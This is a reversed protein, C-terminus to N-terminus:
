GLKELKDFSENWGAKCMERTGDPVGEHTLTMLTEDPSIERLEITVTLELPFDSMGYHTAPVVNGQADAFSDTCVIKKFPIIEKYVGTSWYDKGDPGRMCSLYKGGVRFDIQCVPATFQKPGWWQKMLEPTMWANWVSEVSADFQRTIVLSKSM